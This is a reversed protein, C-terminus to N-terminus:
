LDFPPAIGDADAHGEASCRHAGTVREFQGQLAGELGHAGADIGASVAQGNQFDLFKSSDVSRRKDHEHDDADDDEASDHGAIQHLVSIDGHQELGGRSAPWRDARRDFRGLECIRRDFAEGAALEGTGQWDGCRRLQATRLALSVRCGLRRRM